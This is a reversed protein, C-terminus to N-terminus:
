IALPKENLLDIAAQRRVGLYPTFRTTLDPPIGFAALERLDQAGLDFGHAVTVGSNDFPRGKKDRPVSAKTGEGERLGIFDWDVGPPLGDTEIPASAPVTQPVRLPANHKVVPAQPTARVPQAGFVNSARILQLDRPVGDLGLLGRVAEEAQEKGVPGYRHKADPGGSVDFLSFGHNLSRAM